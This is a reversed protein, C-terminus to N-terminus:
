PCVEMAAKVFEVAVPACLSNGYARLRGVRGAIGHALPHVFTRLFGGQEFGLRVRDQVEQALSRWVAEVEYSPHQVLEEAGSAQLLALVAETTASDGSLEALALSSPLLRV